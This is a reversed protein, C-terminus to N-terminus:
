LFDTRFIWQFSQHQLQLVLVKGDSAFLQSMPFLGQHQSLSVAPPSPSSLPHSPQIADNVWHVHTQAFELLHHLVPFGPASRNVPDSLTPYSQTVSCCSTSRHWPSVWMTAKSYFSLIWDSELQGHIIFVWPKWELQSREVARSWRMFIHQFELTCVFSSIGLRNHM